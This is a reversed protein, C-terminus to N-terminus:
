KTAAKGAKLKIREGVYRIGKGKYVDPERFRRIEAAVQGVLQADIGRVILRTSKDVQIDIGKPINYKVPHSYGLTLNLVDGSVEAKYGTGKIELQKEFGKSVGDVINALLKRMLGHRARADRGEKIRRVHLVDGEKRVDVLPSLTLSMTGKPGKVTVTNGDISAGVGKPLTVPTRGIRSM